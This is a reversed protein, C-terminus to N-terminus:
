GVSTRSSCATIPRSARPGLQELALAPQRVGDDGADAAARVRDAQEVREAVVVHAQDADLGAAVAGVRCARRSRRRRADRHQVARARVHEAVLVPLHLLAVRDRGPEVVRADPRLVREQGLAAAGLVHATVSASASSLKWRRHRSSPIMGASSDACASAARRAGPARARGPRRDHQDAERAAAVLVDVGHDLALPQAHRADARGRQEDVQHGAVVNARAPRPRRARGARGAISTPM